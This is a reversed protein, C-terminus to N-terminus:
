FSFDVFLSILEFMCLSAMRISDNRVIISARNQHPALGVLNVVLYLPFAHLALQSLLLEPIM